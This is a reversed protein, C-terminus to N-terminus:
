PGTQKFSFQSFRGADGGRVAMSKGSACFHIEWGECGGPGNGPVEGESEIRSCVVWCFPSLLRNKCTTVGCLVRVDRGGMDLIGIVTSLVIVRSGKNSTSQSSPSGFLGRLQGVHYLPKIMKEIDNLVSTTDTESGLPHSIPASWSWYGKSWKRCM